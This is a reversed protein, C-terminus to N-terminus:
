VGTKHCVFLGTSRVLPSCTFASPFLMQAEPAPLPQSCSDRLRSLAPPSGQEGEPWVAAGLKEQCRQKSLGKRLLSVFITKLPLQQMGKFCNRTERNNAEQELLPYQKFIKLYNSKKKGSVVFYVERKGPQIGCM